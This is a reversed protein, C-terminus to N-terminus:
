FDGDDVQLCTIGLSRWLAVVQNRDELALRVDYRGTIYTDFLEKKVVDDPRTDHQSRMLLPAGRTWEGLHEVLWNRSARGVDHGRADFGPRGSCFIIQHGAIHLANVVDIVSQNPLDQHVLRYEYHGRTLQGDPM